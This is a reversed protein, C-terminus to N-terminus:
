KKKDALKASVMERFQGLILNERKQREEKSFMALARKEDASYIQNEKRIRVAEMRRHRSGSMVYGVSEFSAIQNSTLGIEGRRPIRKGEAVYAAMAAGEGPLLAKGMEKHTLTAHAKQQPGLVSEEGDSQVEAMSNDGKEVWEEASSERESSSSKQRKKKKKKKKKEKKPKKSKSKKHKKEKKKKKHEKKESGVSNSTREESDSNSSGELLPSKGWINPCPRVGIIEREQRRAELLEEEQTLRKFNNRHKHHSNHDNPWRDNNVDGERNFEKHNRNDSGHKEKYSPSRKRYKSYEAHSVHHHNERSRSRSRDRSRSRYSSRNPSKFSRSSSDM